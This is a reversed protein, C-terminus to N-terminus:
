QVRVAYSSKSILLRSSNGSGTICSHTVQICVGLPGVTYFQSLATSLNCAVLLAVVGSQSQARSSETGGCMTRAWGRVSFRVVGIMSAFMSREDRIWDNQRVTSGSRVTLLGYSESAFQCLPRSPCDRAPLANVIGQWYKWTATGWDASENM